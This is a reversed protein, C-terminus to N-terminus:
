GQLFATGTGFKQGTTDYQFDFPAENKGDTVVVQSSLEVPTKGADNKKGSVALVDSLQGTNTGDTVQTMRLDLVLTQALDVFPINLPPPPTTYPTKLDLVPKDM